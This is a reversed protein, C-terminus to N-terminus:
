LLHDPEILTPGYTIHHASQSGPPGAAGPTHWGVAPAATGLRMEERNEASCPQQVAGDPAGHKYVTRGLGWGLETLLPMNRSLPTALVTSTAMM